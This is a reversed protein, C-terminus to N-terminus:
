IGIELEPVYSGNVFLPQSHGGSDVLTLRKIQIPSGRAYVFDEHWVNRADRFADPGTIGGLHESRGLAIHPGAKEDELVNGWVRARPNCGLGLEAVNCRAPDLFLFDQLNRSAATNGAVEEVRNKNVRLRVIENGYWVPLIGSTLSPVDGEGEYAATYAEGSPLNILRPPPMDRRLRGDDMEPERFRFDFHFQEGSSFEIEASHAGALRARLRECSRAVQAYDAALATSEMEPAVKPMSAARLKPFRKTWGILPASASFETLALLLTARAGINELAILAGDQRGTAPLQGNNMGTADFSILPLVEFGREGGLESLAAHWREAMTRRQKWDDTDHLEGHPLDVLVAATEGPEPDFVNIFLKRLDLM